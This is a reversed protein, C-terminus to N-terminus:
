IKPAQLQVVAGLFMKLTAEVVVGIPAAYRSRVWAVAAIAVNPHRQAAQLPTGPLTTLTDLRLSRTEGGPWAAYLALMNTRVAAM